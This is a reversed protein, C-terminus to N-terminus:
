TIILSEGSSISSTGCLMPLVLLMGFFQGMAMVMLIDLFGADPVTRRLEQL